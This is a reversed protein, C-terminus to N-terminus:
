DNRRHLLVQLIKEYVLVIWAAAVGVALLVFASFINQYGLTTYSGGDGCSAEKGSAGLYKDILKEVEGGQKLKLIFASFLSVFQSGKPFGFSVYNENYRASAAGIQCPYGAMNRKAGGSEGFYVLESDEILMEGAKKNDMIFADANGRIQEDYVDEITPTNAMSFFQAFADGQILVLKYNPKQLLEEFDNVPLVFLDVTLLSVLIANFSWYIMAGFLCVTLFLSRTSLKHATESVSLAGMTLM